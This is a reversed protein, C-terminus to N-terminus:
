TLGVRNWPVRMLAGAPPPPPLCFSFGGRQAVIWAIFRVSPWAGVMWTISRINESSLTSAACGSGTDSFCMLSCVPSWGDVAWRM